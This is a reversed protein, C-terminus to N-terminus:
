VRAARLHKMAAQVLEIDNSLRVGMRRYEIIDYCDCLMELEYGDECLEELLNDLVDLANNVTEIQSPRM